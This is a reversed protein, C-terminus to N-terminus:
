ISWVRKSIAEASMHKGTNSKSIKICQESSLKRGLKKDRMKQRTEESIPKRNQQALKMNKIAEENLLIKDNAKLLDKGDM